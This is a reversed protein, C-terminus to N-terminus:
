NGASGEFEALRDANEDLWEQEIEIRIEQTLEERQQWGAGCDDYAIAMAIEEAQVEALVALDADSLLMPEPEYDAYFAEIEAESMTEPDLGAATLPDEMEEYDPGIGELQEYFYEWQEEDVLWPQGAEAVCAEVDALAAIVRPDAQVRQYIEDLEDGFEMWFAQEPNSEPDMWATNQCGDPEWSEWLADMEEETMDESFEPQNGWLAREYAQREGDSLTEMYDWNPDVFDDEMMQQDFSDDYGVLDPGVQSQGFFMTSHGFGWKETWERSGWEMEDDPGEFSMYQGQDVPTYDFGQERMCAAIRQEAENAQDIWQQESDEDFDTDVGLFDYIPSEYEFDAAVTESADGDAEGDAAEGDNTACGAALLGAGLLAILPRRPSRRPLIM